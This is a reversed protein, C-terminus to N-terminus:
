CGTVAARGAAVAATAGESPSSHAERWDPLELELLPLVGSPSAAVAPAWPAARLADPLDAVGVAGCVCCAAAAVVAGGAAAAPAPAVRSLTTLSKM